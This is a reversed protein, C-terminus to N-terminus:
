LLFPWRCILRSLYEADSQARRLWNVKLLPEILNQGVPSTWFKFADEAGTNARCSLQLADMSDSLTTTLQKCVVKEIICLLSTLAILSVVNLDLRQQVHKLAPLTLLGLSKGKVGQTQVPPTVTIFCATDERTLSLLQLGPSCFGIDSLRQLPFANDFTGRTAQSLDIYVTPCCLAAKLSHSRLTMQLLGPM